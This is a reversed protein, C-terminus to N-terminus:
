GGLGILSRQFHEVTFPVSGERCIPRGDEAL